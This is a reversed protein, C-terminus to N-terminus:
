SIAGQEQFNKELTDLCEDMSEEFPGELGVMWRPGREHVATVSLHIAAINKLVNHVSEESLQISQLAEKLAQDSMQIVPFQQMAAFVPAIDKHLAPTDIRLYAIHEAPLAAAMDIPRYDQLDGSGLLRVLTLLFVFSMGM